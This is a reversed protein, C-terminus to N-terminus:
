GFQLTSAPLAPLPSPFCLNPKVGDGYVAQIDINSKEAL